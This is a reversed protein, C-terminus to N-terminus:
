PYDKLFLLISFSFHKGRVNEITVFFSLLDTDKNSFYNRVLVILLLLSSVEYIDPNLEKKSVIGQTFAKHLEAIVNESLANSDDSINKLKDRLEVFTNQQGVIADVKQSLVNRLSSQLNEQYNSDLSGNLFDDFNIESIFEYLPQVFRSLKLQWYLSHQNSDEPYKANRAKEAIIRLLLNITNREQVHPLLQVLNSLDEPGEIFEVEKMLTYEYQLITKLNSLIGESKEPTEKLEKLSKAYFSDYHEMLLQLQLASDSSKPWNSSTEVISNLTLESSKILEEYGQSQM